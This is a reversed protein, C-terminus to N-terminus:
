KYVFVGSFDCYATGSSSLPDDHREDRILNYIRFSAMRTDVPPLLVAYPGDGARQIMILSDMEMGSAYGLNTYLWDYDYLEEVIKIGQERESFYPYSQISSSDSVLFYTYGEDVQITDQVLAPNLTNYLYQFDHQRSWISDPSNLNKGKVKYLGVWSIVPNRNTVPSNFRSSYRVTLYRYAEIEVDSQIEAYLKLKCGFNDILPLLTDPVSDLIKLLADAEELTLGMSAATDLSFTQRLFTNYLLASDPIVYLFSTDTSNLEVIHREIIDRGYLDYGYDLVVKWRLSYAKESKCVLSIRVTDGPAAEPPECIIALPRVKNGDINEYRSPFDTCATLLAMVALFLINKAM